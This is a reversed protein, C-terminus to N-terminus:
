CSSKADGRDGRCSDKGAGGAMTDNHRVGDSAHLADPGAGGLLTDSGPGAM